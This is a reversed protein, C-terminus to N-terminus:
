WSLAYNSPKGLILKHGLALVKSLYCSSESKKARTFHAYFYLQLFIGEPIKTVLRELSPAFPHLIVICPIDLWDDHLM